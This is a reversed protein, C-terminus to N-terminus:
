PFRVHVLGPEPGIPEISFNGGNRTVYRELAFRMETDSFAAVPIPGLIDTVALSVDIDRGTRHFSEPYNFDANRDLLGGHELSASEIRLVWHHPIVANPAPPHHSQFERALGAAHPAVSPKLFAADSHVAPSPNPTVVFLGHVPQLRVLGPVEVDMLLVPPVNTIWAGPLNVTVQIQGAVEGATVEAAVSGGEVTPGFLTGTSDDFDAGTTFPAITAVDEAGLGVVTLAPTSGIAHHQHGGSQALFEFGMEVQIGSGVGCQPSSLIARVIRADGPRPDDLFGVRGDPQIGGFPLTSEGPLAPHLSTATASLGM